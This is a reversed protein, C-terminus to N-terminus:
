DPKSIGIAARQRGKTVPTTTDIVMPGGCTPCKSTGYISTVMVPTRLSALPQSRLANTCLTTNAETDAKLSTPNGILRKGLDLDYERRETPIRSTTPTNAPRVTPPPTPTIAADDVFVTVTHAFLVVFM